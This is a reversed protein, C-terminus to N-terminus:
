NLEHVLARAAKHGLVANWQQRNAPWYALLLAMGLTSIWRLLPPIAAPRFFITLLPGAAALPSLRKQSVPPSM